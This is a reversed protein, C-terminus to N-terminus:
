VHGLTKQFFDFIIVFCSFFFNCFFLNYYTAVYQVHVTGSLIRERDSQSLVRPKRKKRGQILTTRQKTPVTWRFSVRAVEGFPFAM